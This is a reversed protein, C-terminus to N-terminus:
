RMLTLDGEFLKTEGDIFEIEAFYAFVAPKLPEGRFRGDWGHAPLNPPFDANEFVLNGWRDLIKLHRARAVDKGAFIMFIDNAGDGNPSFANPIFVTKDKKVIIQVKDEAWCGWLDEVKATVLMSELPSWSKWLCDEDLCPITDANLSWDIKGIEENQINAQAQLTLVEGLEIVYNDGLELEVKNGHELIVKESYECGLVDQVELTYSGAPLHPFDEQMYYNEGDISFLFPGTGGRVQRVSIRGDSDGFCSPGQSELELGKLYNDTEIVTVTDQSSCGNTTNTVMLTYLGPRDVRPGLSGSMIYGNEAYWEYQMNSGQSSGSGDLRASVIGM